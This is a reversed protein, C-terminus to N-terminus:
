LMTLIRVGHGTHTSLEGHDGSGARIRGIPDSATVKFLESLADLRSSFLSLLRALIAVHFQDSSVGLIHGIEARDQSENLVAFEVFRGLRNVAQVRQDAVLDGDAEVVRDNDHRTFEPKLM